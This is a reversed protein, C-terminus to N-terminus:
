HDSTCARGSGEAEEQVGEAGERDVHLSFYQRTNGTLRLALISTAVKM